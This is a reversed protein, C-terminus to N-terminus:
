KPFMRVQFIMRQSSIKTVKQTVKGELESAMQKHSTPVQCLSQCACLSLPSLGIANLTPLSTHMWCTRVYPVAHVIHWAKLWSSPLTPLDIALCGSGWQPWHCVTSISWPLRATRWLVSQISGTVPPQFQLHFRNAMWSIIKAFSM